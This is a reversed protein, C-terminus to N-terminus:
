QHAEKDLLTVFEEPRLVPFGLQRSASSFDRINQTVLVSRSNLVCDVIFDDGPDRSAPRYSFFIPVYESRALLAQVAMLATEGRDGALKRALVDQYEFALATSVCPWFRRGVWADVVKASPGLHTLGEFIVNTDIVARLV